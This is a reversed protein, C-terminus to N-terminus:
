ELALIHPAESNISLTQGDPFIVTTKAKNKLITTGQYKVTVPWSFPNTGQVRIRWPTIIEVGVIKLFTGLPALGELNNKEGKGEGSVADYIKYLCGSKEYNATLTNMIRTMIESAKQPLDFNILGRMILTNWIMTINGSDKTESDLYNLLGSPKWFGLDNFLSNYLIEKVMTSTPIRSFIPLLLSIDKTMNGATSISIIDEPQNGEIIIKEINTYVRDSTAFGSSLYWRFQSTSLREIKNGGSPGTGHIFVVIKRTDEGHRDIKIQLRVPEPFSQQIFLNNHLQGNYIIQSDICLHTDRDRYRFISQNEDWSALISKRLATVRKRFRQIGPSEDGVIEALYLLSEGELVLWSNLDPCEFTSIDIGETEPLWHSFCKNDELGTQWPHDWEPIGDHDRDMAPIFWYDYFKQLKPYSTEVFEKDQTQSYVSKLFYALMPTAAISSRQNGLGPKWDIMGNENQISLFNELFNMGLHISGPLLEQSLYWANLATQGNWLHNYDSGDGRISNGQDPQRSLVFSNKPFFKTPSLVLSSAIKQSFSFVRDWEPEGTIIEIINANSLAIQAIKADWDDSTILRASNFSDQASSESAIACISTNTENPEIELSLELAPYPGMSAYAGGSLFFVPELGSTKGCLTSVNDFERIAMRSGGTSPTLLASWTLTLKRSQTSQNLLTIRSAASHSDPIWYELTALIENLPSFILEVLNPYFAKVTVPTNFEGPDSRQTDGEGFRPFIRQKRARLGYTTDLSLGPPDGQNIVLEWIQDNFYDTQSINADSALTVSFPSKKNVILEHM